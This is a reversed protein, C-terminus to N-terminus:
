LFSFQLMLPQDLKAKLGYFPYAKEGALVPIFGYSHPSFNHYNGPYDIIGYVQYIKARHRKQAKLNKLIKVINFVTKLSFHPGTEISIGRRYNILAHGKKINHAMYVIHQLGTTQALPIM